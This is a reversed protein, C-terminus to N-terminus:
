QIFTLYIELVPRALRSFHSCSSFIRLINSYMYFISQDKRMLDCM